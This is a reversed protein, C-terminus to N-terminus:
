GRWSCGACGSWAICASAFSHELSSRAMRRIAWYDLGHEEVTRKVGEVEEQTATPRMVVIM